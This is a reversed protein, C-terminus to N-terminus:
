MRFHKMYLYRKNAVTLYAVMCVCQLGYCSCTDCFSSSKDVNNCSFRLHHLLWMMLSIREDANSYNKHVMIHYFHFRLFGYYNANNGLYFSM